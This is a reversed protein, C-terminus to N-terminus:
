VFVEMADSERETNIIDPRDIRELYKECIESIEAEFAECASMIADQYKKDPLVRITWMPLGGSYSIYDWWDRGTVLMAGQVQLMHEVPVSDSTIVEIQYKQNRSKCEVGGDDGVLGDPSCWLQFSGFDRLVGGVETVPVRHESYKEKAKIEDTWGRMMADSIYTPEVYRSIRQAALEYAHSRTKANNAVKLTPTLILNLESCTMLGCRAALWEDSGQELDDYYTVTM